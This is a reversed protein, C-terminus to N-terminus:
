MLTSRRLTRAQTPDFPIRAHQLHLNNWIVADGVNWQHIYENGQAAYDLINGLLAKGEELDVGKFDVVSGFNVWPVREGTAPDRWILPQWHRPAEPPAKELSFVMDREGSMDYNGLTEYFDFLHLCEVKEAQERTDSDLLKYADACSRFKTAGGAKPVEVGYLMIIRLPDADFLHDHHYALEGNGLMGDPRQNSVYVTNRESPLKDIFEQPASTPEAHEGFVEGLKAQQDADIDLNKFVLLRYKEFASKLQDRVEPTDIQSFDFGVVEAAFTSTLPKFSVAM